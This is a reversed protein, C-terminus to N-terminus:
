LEVDDAGGAPGTDQPQASSWDESEASDEDEDDDEEVEGPPRYGPNGPLNLHSKGPGPMDDPDLPSANGTRWMLDCFERLTFKTDLPLKSRQSAQGIISETQQRYLKYSDRNEESFSGEFNGGILGKLEAMRKEKKTTAKKQPPPKKKKKGQVDEGALQKALLEIMEELSRTIPKKNVEFLKQKKQVCSDISERWGEQWNAKVGIPGPPSSAPKKSKAKAAVLSPAIALLLFAGIHPHVDAGM